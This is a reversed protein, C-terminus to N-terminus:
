DDTKRRTGKWINIGILTKNVKEFVNLSEQLVEEMNKQGEKNEFISLSEELAVELDRKGKDEFEERAKRVSMQMTELESKDGSPVEMANAEKSMKAFKLAFDERVGFPTTLLGVNEKRLVKISDYHQNPIYRLLIPEKGLGVCEHFTRMPVM